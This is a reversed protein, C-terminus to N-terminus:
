PASAPKEIRAGRADAASRATARREADTLRNRIDLGILIPLALTLLGLLYGARSRQHAQAGYRQAMMALLLQLVFLTALLQIDRGALLVHVVGSAMMISILGSEIMFTPHLLTLAAGPLAILAWLIIGVGTATAVGRALASTLARPTARLALLAITLYPAMLLLPHWVALGAAGAPGIVLIANRRAIEWAAAMVAVSALAAIALAVGPKSDNVDVNM